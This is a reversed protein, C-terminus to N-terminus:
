AASRGLTRSIIAELQRMGFPKSLTPLDRLDTEEPLDIYGTALIVPLEPKLARAAGALETGKMKPMAQDTILLDVEQAKLAELAEAGSHAEIVTHGLDELMVVTNMLVLIDDDVAIVTLGPRADRTAEGQGAPAAAGAAPAAAPFWMEVTTGEGERSKLGLHGGLEELMGHITSLGLGTGKGPGKTTFFPDAAKALTAEDMGIGTDTISLCVGPATAGIAPQPAAPGVHVTLRGGDPMADRANTAVNLLALELQAPDVTVAPTAGDATIELTIEDGLSLALLGELDHVLGPLDVVKAEMPQRRAFALVRKTLDAGREAGKMANSLLRALRPDDPLRKQILELSGSIAMLLNNFDHAIGGALQGLAELKRSQLLEEQAAELDIQAKRRETIDRTVKAFGVLEGEDDYIADVVANAWFRSGDKRIRWGESEYRGDRRATELARDPLGEARDEASYFRSFHTGLIEEPAYGKIREAGSNWSAIHGAPDLMYIAYDTVGQVLLRFQEQSARLEQERARRETLDRTIKAFGLLQGDSSQIRDVVVHAWFRKGDKRVRWGEGEFRGTGAATTLVTQPLGRARDEETYFRAFNEGIIEDARYGKFREAGPNWSTVRGEADLMYIAYDTIAGLLIRYREDENIESLVSEGM